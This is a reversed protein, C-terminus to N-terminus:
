TDPPPLAAVGCGLDKETKRHDSIHVKCDMAARKLLDLLRSLTDEKRKAIAYLVEDSSMDPKAVLSSDWHMDAKQKDTYTAIYMFVDVNRQNPPLLSHSRARVARGIVQKVRIWNWYPELIHVQRVNRLSIGESGAQTILIVDAVRGTAPDALRSADKMASAPVNQYNQNFVDLLVQTKEPHTNSFVIFRKAADPNSCSLRMGGGRKHATVEGYGMNELVRALAGLGEVTRYQSYILVPGGARKLHQVLKELKPAYKGINKPSFYGRRDAENFYADVDQTETKKSGYKRHFVYNCLTRSLTKFYNFDYKKLKAFLDIDKFMNSTLRESSYKIDEAGKPELAHEIKRAKKYEKFQADSMPVRVERVPKQSPYEKPDYYYYYSVLGGVMDMFAQQRAAIEDPDGVFLSSMLDRFKSGSLPLLTDRRASVGAKTKAKDLKVDQVVKDISNSHAAKANPSNKTKTAFGDPQLRISVERKEEVISFAAVSPHAALAQQLGALFMPDQFKSKKCRVVYSTQYGAALNLLLSLEDVYNILPTGSLCVVKSNTADMINKYLAKSVPSGNVVRSVFNHVEDIIIVKNDFLRPTHTMMDMMRGATLGNYRVFTIRKAIIAKLHADISARDAPGLAEYNPKRSSSAHWGASASASATTSSRSWHRHKAYTANGFRHLEEIFNNQLTAPLLVVVDKQNVFVESITIASRTKGTGLGHYLIIGRYPSAPQMYDRVLRQHKFLGHPASPKSYKFTRKVWAQLNPAGPAHFAKPTTEPKHTEPLRM